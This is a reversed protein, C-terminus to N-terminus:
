TFRQCSPRRGASRTRAATERATRAASSADTVGACRSASNRRSASIERALKAAISINFRVAGSINADIFTRRARSTTAMERLNMLVPTSPRTRSRSGFASVSVVVATMAETSAPLGSDLRM